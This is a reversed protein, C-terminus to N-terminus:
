QGESYKLPFEGIFKGKLSKVVLKSKHVLLVVLSKATWLLDAEYRQKKYRIGGLLPKVYKKEIIEEKM